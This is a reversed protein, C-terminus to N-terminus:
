ANVIFLRSKDRQTCNGTVETICDAAPFFGRELSLPLM